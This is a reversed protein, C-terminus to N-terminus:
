RRKAEEYDASDKVGLRQLRRAQAKAMKWLPPPPMPAGDVRTQKSHQHELEASAENFAGMKIERQDVPTRTFGTFAIPYVAQRTAPQGCSCFLRRVEMAALRETVHGGPCVYEYLPM